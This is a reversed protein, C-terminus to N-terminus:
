QPAVYKVEFFLDNHEWVNCKIVGLSYPSCVRRLNLQRM